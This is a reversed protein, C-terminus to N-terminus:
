PVARTPQVDNIITIRMIPPIRISVSKLGANPLNLFQKRAVIEPAAAVQVHNEAVQPFNKLSSFKILEVLPAADIQNETVVIEALKVIFKNHVHHWRRAPFDCPKLACGDAVVRLRAKVPIFAFHKVGIVIAIPADMVIFVGVDM